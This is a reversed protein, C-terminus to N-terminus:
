AWQLETEVSPPQTVRPCFRPVWKCLLNRPRRYGTRTRSSGTWVRSNSCPVCVCVLSNHTYTHKHTHPGPPRHTLPRFTSFFFLPPILSFPGSVVKSSGRLGDTTCRLGAVGYSLCFLIVILTTSLGGFQGCAMKLSVKQSEDGIGGAGESAFRALLPLGWESKAVRPYAGTAGTAGTAARLAACPCTPVRTRDVWKM